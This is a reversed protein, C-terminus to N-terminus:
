HTEVLVTVGAGTKVWGEWKLVEERVGGGVEGEGLGLVPLRVGASAPRTLRCDVGGGTSFPPVCVSQWLSHHLTVTRTLRTPSGRVQETRDSGEGRGPYEGQPVVLTQEVPYTPHLVDIVRGRVEEPGELEGVRKRTKTGGPGM